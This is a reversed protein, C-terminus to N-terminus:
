VGPSTVATDERGLRQTRRTRGKKRVKQGM